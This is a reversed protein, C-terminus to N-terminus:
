MPILKQMFKNMTTRGGALAHQIREANDNMTQDKLMKKLEQKIEEYVLPTVEKVLAELEQDSM